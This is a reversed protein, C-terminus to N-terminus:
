DPGALASTLGQRIGLKAVHRHKQKPVIVDIERVTVVGLGHPPVHLVLDRGLRTLDHTYKLGSLLPVLPHWPISHPVLCSM